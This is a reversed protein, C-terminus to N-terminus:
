TTSSCWDAALDPLNRFDSFSFSHALATVPNHRYGETFLAFPLAANQATEADVESDGVFLATAAGVARLSALLPAPDPKRQPLSDGTIIAKFDKALDLHTLIAQTPRLPKNTCLGLTWGEAKLRNLALRVDPYLETLHVSTEYQALFEHLLPEFLAAPLDRAAMMRQVFVRAGHGVFGRSQAPTVPKIGRASLVQTCALHIDPASDILTGDLDFIIAKM